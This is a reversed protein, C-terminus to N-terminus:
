LDARVGQEVLLILTADRNGHRGVSKGAKIMYMIDWKYLAYTRTSQPPVPSKRLIVLCNYKFKFGKCLLRKLRPCPKTNYLKRGM